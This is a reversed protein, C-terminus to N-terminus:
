RPDADASDGQQMLARDVPSPQFRIVLDFPLTRCTLSTSEEIAFRFADWPYSARMLEPRARKAEDPLYGARFEKRVEYFRKRYHDAQQESECGIRVADDLDQAMLMLKLAKEDFNM